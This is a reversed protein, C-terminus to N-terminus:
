ASKKQGRVQSLRRRIPTIRFESTKVSVGMLGACAMCGAACDLYDNDYATGEREKWMNKTRGRATLPEPYESNCIHNSFMEHYEVPANHITICGSADGLPVALRSFLFDKLRNVDAMMYWMGDPNPRMVWKPEKVLPNRQHEFIWGERLEYEELQLNTPPLPAGYYPTLNPIGQERIYRKITESAQGWRTDVTLHQIEFERQPNTPRIYRKGRLHNVVQSLGWYYKAEPPARLKGQNNRIAKDKHEPFRKFFETTILSWSYTQHKTFYPIKVEPWTGYDIFTGNFDTDTAFVVWYFIEDQVDIHAVVFNANTPVIGKKFEVQKEALQKATIHIASTVVLQRGINQYEPLFMPGLQIRLNMAHQQASIEFRKDYREEWSVVYGDDMVDRHAAYFETAKSINKYDRLSSRRVEAYENWLQGATTDNTIEHDTLGAPWSIVMRCRVGQWDPKKIPDLYTDAADGERIVTCPMLADIHSGGGALGTVAGDILRILKECLLPSDAKQDKQVDDLIVLDPRPQELTVPDVEAEGRISGDIGSCRLIVGANNTVWRGGERIPLASGNSSPTGRGEEQKKRRGRKDTPNPLVVLRQLQEGEEKPSFPQGKGGTAPVWLVSQPDHEYYYEAVEHPLSCIPFRMEDSALQVYTPEQNFLQGGALRNNGECKAISWCIEPFDTQLLLNNELQVKVFNLTQSSKGENSGVNYIFHKYGYLTGWLTAARVIATKGGARPMAVSFKGGDRCVVQARDVCVLQDSSWNMFFVPALYTECFARLDNKCGLRREWDISLPFIGIERQLPRNKRKWAQANQRLSEAKEEPTHYLRAKEAQERLNQITNPDHGAPYGRSKQRSPPLKLFDGKFQSWPLAKSPQNVDEKSKRPM